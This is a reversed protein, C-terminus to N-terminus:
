SASVLQTLRKYLRSKKRAANNKHILGKAVAKDIARAAKAFADKANDADAEGLASEFRKISTKLTSRAAVNALNQLRAIKM